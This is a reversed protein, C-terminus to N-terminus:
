RGDATLETKLLRKPIRRVTVFRARFLDELSELVEAPIRKMLEELKPLGKSDDEEVDVNAAPPVAVAITEGRERADALFASEAIEDFIPPEGEGQSNPPAEPTPADVNPLLRKEERWGPAPLATAPLTAV